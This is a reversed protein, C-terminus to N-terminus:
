SDGKSTSSRSLFSSLEKLFESLLGMIFVGGLGIGWYGVHIPNFPCNADLWLQRAGIELFSNCANNGIELAFDDVSFGRLDRQPSTTNAATSSSEAKPQKKEVNEQKKEVSAERWVTPDTIGAQKAALQDAADSFGLRRADNDRDIGIRVGVGFFAIIVGIFSAIVLWKAKPRMSRFFLAIISGILVFFFVLMLIGWTNAATSFTEANARKKEVTAARWVTPDTIGAQKAAVQDAADSFGLRRADNDRDIGIQITLGFFAIFLCILSAPALWKAKPRASKFLLAILSGILVLFFVLTFIVWTNAATSFTESKAQKKEVNEQKKEVTAERWLTPDTIGAQKAAVQDTADSFGLLRADNDRDIGIQITLGFIAIFLCILSSSALWKAKPRTNRFFLAIISGILVFFFVLMLIGWTNAATSFTEANAQKKEVNEQKKEVSAELWVTPDTIGPKKAAIQAAASFGLPRADSDKAIGIQVGFGFFAIIVGIFGTIVLWKAKPCANKFFLAIISGVLVFFFVLM